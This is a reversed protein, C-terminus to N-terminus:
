NTERRFRGKEAIEADIKPIAQAVYVPVVGRLGKIEKFKRFIEQKRIPFERRAWRFKKALFM